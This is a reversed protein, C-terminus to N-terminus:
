LVEKITLPSFIKGGGVVFKSFFEYFHLRTVQIGVLLGELAIIFLNGIILMGLSLVPWAELMDSMMVVAMSLGVHALTFAAIRVFSLTQVFFKLLMDFGELLALFLRVFLGEARAQQFKYAMLLLLAVTSGLGGMLAIPKFGFVLGALTSVFGLYFILGILGTSEWLMENFHRMRFRNFVGLLLGLLIMFIGIGISGALYFLVQDLPHFWLPPLLDERAFFSGFLAGFFAASLGIPVLVHGAARATSGTLWSPLKKHRSAGLLWLGLMSLLLGQGLDAFMMGFMLVFGSAVFVTPDIERYGTTDFSQILRGFGDLWRLSKKSVPVDEFPLGCEDALCLSAAEDRLLRAFSRQESAPVWGDIVVWPDVHGIREATALLLQWQQRSLGHEIYGTDTSSEALLYPTISDPPEAKGVWLFLGSDLAFVGADDIHSLEGPPMEGIHYTFLTDSPFTSLLRRGYTAAEARCHARYSQKLLKINGKDGLRIRESLHFVGSRALSQLAEAERHHPLIWTLRLM